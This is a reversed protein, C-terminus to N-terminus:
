KIKYLFFVKVEKQPLNDFLVDYSFVAFDFEKPQLAKSYIMFLDDNNFNYPIECHRAYPFKEILEFLDEPTVNLYIQYVPDYNNLVYKLEVNYVCSLNYNHSISTNPLEVGFVNVSEIGPILHINSEKKISFNKM